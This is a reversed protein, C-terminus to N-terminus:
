SFRGRIAADFAQYRATWTQGSAFLTRAARKDANDEALARDLQAAFQTPGSGIYAYPEGVAAVEALPTAVIPKSLTLYEYMKVPDTAETVANIQFPIICADCSALFSPMEAFPRHGLFHVNPLKGLAEVAPSAFQRERDFAGALVFSYAPRSAAVANLLDFDFWDAIAGAYGVMPRPFDFSPNPKALRFFDFDVANPILAPRAGQRELGEKLANATTTLLDADHVLRRSEARAFEGVRPFTDWEDICDFVLQSGTRDRIALGVRRWFPFQVLVCVNGSRNRALCDLVSAAARDASDGIWEGLYIGPIPDALRLEWANACLPVLEYPKTSGARVFRNPSVWFVRRGHSAFQVALHQPRQFRFDFDFVPLIVVDYESPPAAVEDIPDEFLYPAALGPPLFKSPAPPVLDYKTLAPIGRFPARALFRLLEIRGRWGERFSHSYLKRGLLFAQWWRQNRFQALAEGFRDHAAFLDHLARRRADEIGHLRVAFELNIQAPGTRPQESEPPM